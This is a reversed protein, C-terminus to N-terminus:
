LYLVLIGLAVLVAGIVTNAKINERAILRTTWQSLVPTLSTTIVTATVGVSWIAYTFLLGGVTLGLVGSLTSALILNRRSNVSLGREVKLGIVTFIVGVTLFRMATLGIFDYYNLAVRILTTGVGWSVAAGLAFIIGRLKLPTRRNTLGAGVIVGTFALISGMIVTLGWKEGLFLASLASAVFIYTYGVVVALSGGLIKIAQAYLADGLGPGLLASTIAVLLGIDSDVHINRLFVLLPMSAVLARLGAFVVPKVDRSFRSIIAPNLSWVTSAGLAALLGEIL